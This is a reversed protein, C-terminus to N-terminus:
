KEIGELVKQRLIGNYIGEECKGVALFGLSEYYQALKENDESSDLRLYEKEKGVAYKEVYQLFITGVGKEGIRSVFNHIYIAPTNDEWRTDSELLVAACVIEGSAKDVLVFVNGNKRENEYYEKPYYKDYNTVNWQKIGTEDMWKMRQLIMSFMQPIEDKTIERFLYNRKM